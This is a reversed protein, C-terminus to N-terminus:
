GREEVKTWFAELGQRIIHFFEESENVLQHHAEPLWQVQAQPFLARYVAINAQAAVTTDRGGQFIQVPYSSPAATLMSPIWELMAGIWDVSLHSPQLYDDYALFDLFDRDHSTCGFDRKIKRLYPSLFRYLWRVKAPQYPYLLPALVSVGAFHQSMRPEHLLADLLMAGGTSQGVAICPGVQTIDQQWLLAALVQQYQQFRQISAREGSSLGHGPWDFAYVQWGRALGMQLLRGYLGLHDTYGTVIWLAGKIEGVPYARYLHIRQGAIPLWGCEVQVGAQWRWADLAYHHLYGQLLPSLESASCPYPPLQQHLRLWLPIPQQMSAKIFAFPGM